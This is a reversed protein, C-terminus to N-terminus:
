PQRYRPHRPHTEDYGIRAQEEPTGRDRWGTKTSDKVQQAVEAARQQQQPEVVTRQHREEATETRRRLM